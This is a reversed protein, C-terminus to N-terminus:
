PLLRYGGEVRPILVLVARVRNGTPDEANLMSEGLTRVRQTMPGFVAGELGLGDDIAGGGPERDKPGFREVPEDFVDVLGAENRGGADNDDNSALGRTTARGAAAGGGREAAAEGGEADGRLAYWDLALVGAGEEAGGRATGRRGAREAISPWDAAPDAAVIVLAHTPPLKTELTLGEFWVDPSLDVEGLVRALPSASGRARELQVALEV